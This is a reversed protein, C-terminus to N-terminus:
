KSFQNAYKSFMWIRNNEHMMTDCYLWPFKLEAHNPIAQMVKRNSHLPITGIMIYLSGSNVLDVENIGEINGRLTGEKSERFTIHQPVYGGIIIDPAYKKVAEYATLKEVMPDYKIYGQVNAGNQENMKDTFKKWEDRGMMYSDTCRIGLNRGIQGNGAGVEIANRDGIIDKLFALLELTPYVNIAHKKMFMYIDERKYEQLQDASIPKVNGMNDLLLTNMHGITNANFNVKTVYYSNQM